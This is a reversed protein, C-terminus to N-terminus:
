GVMQAQLLWAVVIMSIGGGYLALWVSTAKKGTFGWLFIALAVPFALLLMATESAHFDSGFYVSGAIGLAVAGWIFLYTGLLVGVVPAVRGGLLVSLVFASSAKKKLLM